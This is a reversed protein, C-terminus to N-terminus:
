RPQTSEPSGQAVAEDFDVPKVRWVLAKIDDLITYVVPIFILTFLTAISLGGIVATALGNYIEAGAGNKLALPLMGLIMSIATMFIPRMRRKSALMLAEDRAVGHEDMLQVAYTILLIANKVVLGVMMIYGLITFSDFPINTARVLVNAGVISLPVSLLISLPRVFSQFQMVLLLYVLLVSLPLVFNVADLLKKLENVAGFPLVTYGVPFAVTSNIKSVVETFVDGLPRGQITFQVRSNRRSNYHTIQLPGFTTEVSAVSALPVQIDPNRPSTLIIRGVDSVTKFDAEQGMVRIYFYRGDVDYQSTTKQGGVAAEIADAIDRVEFGLHAARQHDVRIEVQPKKLALDTYRFIIGSTNKGIEMIQDVLSEIIAYSKGTVRVDVVNSRSFINGFLPFQIPNIAKLPLDRAAAAAQKQITTIAVGSDEERECVLYVMNRFSNRNPIAVIHRVGKISRWRDEMIEMLRSNEDLSTGEFCEVQMRILNTGGTPLYGMGPLLWHSLGFVAVVFVILFAKRAFGGMFFGLSWMFGDAVKGGIVDLFYLPALVRKLIGAPRKEERMWRSAMMPVVTFADFLSVFVAVSIIFAVPAFLTGVEGRLLLVPMFVAATTLTAMFAAMGVERTGDVCARIINKGEEYRHRYINELVVIADDVVLGISLALGALSLVNISYGFAYMGIFTGIISVPISTAVIFISRWNKLFVFLVLLVLIIAEVLSERVIAIADRIYMSQDYIKQLKAGQPGYEKNMSKLERDVLDITHVINAGVQNFVSFAIGPVGNIRCYSDPREYMDEIVAVDHLHIIPDGPKSIIVKRFQESTLLEGVTRVTWERTGEIFYGGSRNLNTKDIFSKIDSVTLRRAKLREPDFTIRMERNRNGDFQCDGVGEIRKIRPAIERDAWTSMTVIDVDGTLAFQYVPLNVRESAKFIQPKQVASPLDTVRDLNRQLEAAALDLNTGPKFFMVVFSQGYPSFSQTYLLNSVGSINDEFRTTIEGEVEEPAAGPFRTSVVLVPQETDPKLEVVLFTMCVYGLVLVLLVRVIVTIPFRVSAEAINM